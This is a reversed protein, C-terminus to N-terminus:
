KSIKRRATANGAVAVPATVTVVADRVPAKVVLAAVRAAPVDRGTVLTAVERAPAIVVAPVERGTVLIAVERAPPMVVRAEAEYAVVVMRKWGPM